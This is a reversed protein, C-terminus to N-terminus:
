RTTLDADAVRVGEWDILVEMKVGGEAECVNRLDTRSLLTRIDDDESSLVGVGDYV